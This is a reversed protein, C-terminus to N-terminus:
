PSGAASSATILAVALWWLMQVQPRYWITDVLGHAMM